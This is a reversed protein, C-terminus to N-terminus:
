FTFMPLRKAAFYAWYIIAAVGDPVGLWSGGNRVHIAGLFFDTWFAFLLAFMTFIGGFGFFMSLWWEDGCCCKYLFHILALLIVLAVFAGFVECINEMARTRNSWNGAAIASMGVLGIVVSVSYAVLWRVAKFGFDKTRLQSPLSPLPPLPAINPGPTTFRQWFRVPFWANPDINQQLRQEYAARAHINTMEIVGRRTVVAQYRAARDRREGDVRKADRARHFTVLTQTLSFVAKWVAVLIFPWEGRCRVLTLISCTTTGLMSLIAELLDLRGHTIHRWPQLPRRATILCIITYYSLLHSLFGMIGYPLSYCQLADQFTGNRINPLLSEPDFPVPTSAAVSTFFLIWFFFM